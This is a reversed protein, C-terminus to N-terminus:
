ESLQNLFVFQNICFNLHILTKVLLNGSNNVRSIQEFHFVHLDCSLLVISKNLFM